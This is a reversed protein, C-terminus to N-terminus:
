GYFPFRQLFFFSYAFYPKEAELSTINPPLEKNHPLMRHKSPCKAAYEGRSALLMGEGTTVFLFTELCQLHGGLSLIAGPQSGNIFLIQCM